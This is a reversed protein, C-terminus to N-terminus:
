FKRCQRDITCSKTICSRFPANNKLAVDKEAVDDNEHAKPNVTGKVAMMHM